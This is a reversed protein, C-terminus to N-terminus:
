FRDYIVILFRNPVLTFCYRIIFKWFINNKFIGPHQCADLLIYM